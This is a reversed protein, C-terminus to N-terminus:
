LYERPKFINVRAADHAAPVHLVMNASRALKDSAATLRNGQMQSRIGAMKLCNIRNSQTTRAGLLLADASAAIVSTSGIMM